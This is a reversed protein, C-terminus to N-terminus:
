WSGHPADPAPPPTSAPPGRAHADDARVHQGAPGRAARAAGARGDAPGPRRRGPQRGRRVDAPGAAGPRRGAAARDHRRRPAHASGAGGLCRGARAGRGGAAGSRRHARQRHRARGPRQLRARAAAVRERATAVVGARLREEATMARVAISGDARLTAGSRAGLRASQGTAGLAWAGAGVGLDRWSGEGYGLLLAGDAVTGVGEGVAGAAACEPALRAPLMALYGVGHGVASAGRLGRYLASDALDDDALAALARSCRSDAAALRERSATHRAQARAVTAMEDQQARRVALLDPSGEDLGATVLAYARDELLQFWRWAEAHEEVARQTVAQEEELVGAYERLPAWRASSATSRRPRAGGPRQRGPGLVGGGGSRGM